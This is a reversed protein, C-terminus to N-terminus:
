TAIYDKVVKDKMSIIITLTDNGELHSPPLQASVVWVPEKVADLGDEYFYGTDRHLTGESKRGNLWAEAIDLAEELEM